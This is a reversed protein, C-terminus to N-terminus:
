TVVVTHNFQGVWLRGMTGFRSVVINYTGAPLPSWTWTFAGLANIYQCYILRDWTKPDAFNAVHYYVTAWGDALISVSGDFRIGREVAYPTPWTSSGMPLSENIETNWTPSLQSRWRSLNLRQYANFPSFTAANALTNWKAQEIAPVNKWQESLFRLIARMAIQNNTRPQKPKAHTKLYAKGKWTSFTLTDALTGSAGTAQGPGKLKVM